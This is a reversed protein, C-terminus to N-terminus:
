RGFGSQQQPAQLERQSQVAKQNQDKKGRRVEEQHPSPAKREPRQHGHPHWFTAHCLDEFEKLGDTLLYASTCEVPKILEQNITVLLVVGGKTQFLIPDFLREISHAIWVMMQAHSGTGERRQQQVAVLSQPRLGRAEAGLAEAGLLRLAAVREGVDGEAGAGATALFEYIYNVFGGSHLTRRLHGFRSRESSCRERASHAPKLHASKRCVTPSAFVCKNLQSPPLFRSVAGRVVEYVVRKMRLGRRSLLPATTTHISCASKASTRALPLISCSSQGSRTCLPSDLVGCSNRDDTPRYHKLTDSTPTHAPTPRRKTLPGWTWPRWPHRLSTLRKEEIYLLLLHFIRRINKVNEVNNRVVGKTKWSSESALMYALVKESTMQKIGLMEIILQRQPDFRPSQFIAREVDEAAPECVCCNLNNADSEARFCGHGTLLDETWIDNVSQSFSNLFTGNCVLKEDTNEKSTDFM